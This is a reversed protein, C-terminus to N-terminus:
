DSARKLRELADRERSESIDIIEQPFWKVPAPLVLSLLFPVFLVSLVGIFVGGIVFAPPEYRPNLATRWKPVVYFALIGLAAGVLLQGYVWYRNRERMNRNHYYKAEELSNKFGTAYWKSENEGTQVEVSDTIADADLPMPVIFIASWLASTLYTIVGVTAAFAILHIPRDLSM